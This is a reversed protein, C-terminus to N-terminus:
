ETLAAWSKWDLESCESSPKTSRYMRWLSVPSWLWGVPRVVLCGFCLHTRNKDLTAYYPEETARWKSPVETVRASSGRVAGSLSAVGPTPSFCCWLSLSSFGPCWYTPNCCCRKLVLLTDTGPKVVWGGQYQSSWLAIINQNSCWNGSTRWTKSCYLCLLCLVIIYTYLVISLVPTQILIWYDVSLPISIQILIPIQILVLIPILVSVQYWYPYPYGYGNWYTTGFSTSVPVPLSVQILILALLQYLYKYQNPNPKKKKNVHAAMDGGSVVGM